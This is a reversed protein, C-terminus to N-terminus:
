RWQECRATDQWNGIGWDGEDADDGENDNWARTVRHSSCKQGAGKPMSPRSRKRNITPAIPPTSSVAISLRQHAPSLAVPGHITAESPALATNTKPIGDLGN